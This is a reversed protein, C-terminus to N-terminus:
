KRSASKRKSRSALKKVGRATAKKKLSRPRAPRPGLDFRLKGRIPGGYNYAIVELLLNQETCAFTRARAEPFCLETLEWPVPKFWKKLCEEAEKAGEGGSNATCLLDRIFYAFQWRKRILRIIEQLGLEPKPPDDCSYPPKFDRSPTTGQAGKRSSNKKAPM